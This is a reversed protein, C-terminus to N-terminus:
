RCSCELHEEIERETYQLLGDDGKYRVIVTTTATKTPMCREGGLCLGTYYPCRNVPVEPPLLEKDQLSDWRDLEDGLKLAHPVPQCGSVTSLKQQQQRYRQDYTLTVTPPTSADDNVTVETSSPTVGPNLTVGPVTGEMPVDGAASANCTPAADCTTNCLPVMLLAAAVAGFVCLAFVVCVLIISTFIKVDETLCHRRVYSEVKNMKQDLGKEVQIM